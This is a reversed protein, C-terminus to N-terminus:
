SRNAQTGGVMGQMIKGYQLCDVVNVDDGRRIIKFGNLCNPCRNIMGAWNVDAKAFLGHWIKMSGFGPKLDSFGNLECRLAIM